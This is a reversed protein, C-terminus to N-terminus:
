ALVELALEAEIVRRYDSDANCIGWLSAEVTWSGCEPCQRELICGEQYDRDDPERGMADALWSWDANIDDVWRFRVAGTSRAWREAKALSLAGQARFGVCYGANRKFFRYSMVLYPDLAGTWHRGIM